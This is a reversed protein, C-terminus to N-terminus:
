LVFGGAKGDASANARESMRKTLEPDYDVDEGSGGTGGPAVQERALTMKRQGKTREALLKELEAPDGAEFIDLLTKALTASLGAAKAAKLSLCLVPRKEATGTTFAVLLEKQKPTIRRDSALRDIRSLVNAASEEVVDPDLSLKTIDLVPAGKRAEDLDKSLSLIRDNLGKVETDHDARSLMTKSAEMREKLKTVAVEETTEAPLSLATLLAALLTMSPEQTPLRNEVVPDASFYLVTNDSGERSAAIKEFHQQGPVVPKPTLTIATIAEDYHNGHGDVLNPTLELSVEQCRAMLQEAEADSPQVRFFGTNGDRELSVVEGRKAEAMAPTLKKSLLAGTQPDRVEIHDVTLPITIGRERMLKYTAIWQDIRPVTVAFHVKGGPSPVVWTGTRIFDKRYVPGDHTFPVTACAASALLIKISVGQGM